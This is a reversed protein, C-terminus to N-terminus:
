LSVNSVEDSPSPKGTEEKVVFCTQRSSQFAIQKKPPTAILSAASKTTANM